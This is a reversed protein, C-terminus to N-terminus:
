PGMVMVFAGGWHSGIRASTFPMRGTLSDPIGGSRALAFMV